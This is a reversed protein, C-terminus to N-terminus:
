YLNNEIILNFLGSQYYQDYNKIYSLEPLHAAPIRGACLSLIPACMDESINEGTLVCVAPNLIATYCCVVSAVCKIISERGQQILEYIDGGEYPLFVVEGAFHNEGTHIRGNIIIGSGAGGDKFFSIVVLSSPAAGKQFRSAYLGYAIANMNNEMYFNCSFRSSLRGVIDCGNLETLTCSHIYDDDHYGPIGISFTKIKPYKELLSSVLDEISQYTIVDPWVQQQEVPNGLLDMVVYSLYHQSGVPSPIICCVYAFDKNYKYTKAPRGVTSSASGALIIEGSEYLTNLLNNTTAISLGTRQAVSHKTMEGSTRIARKVLIINNEKVQNVTTVQNM